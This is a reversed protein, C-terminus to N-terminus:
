PSGPSPRLEAPLAVSGDPERHWPVARRIERLEIPRYLHPYVEGPRSEEWVLDPRATDGLEVLVLEDSSGFHREITGVLQDTTSCHVFGESHLSPPVLQGVSPAASWAAPDTVHFVADTM